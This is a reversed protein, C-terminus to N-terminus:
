VFISIISSLNVINQHFIQFHTHTHATHITLTIEDFGYSVTNNDHKKPACIIENIIAVFRVSFDIHNTM